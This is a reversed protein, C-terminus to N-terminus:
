KLYNMQEIWYRRWIEYVQNEHTLNDIRGGSVAFFNFEIGYKAVRSQWGASCFKRRLGAM